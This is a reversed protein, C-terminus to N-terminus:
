LCVRNEASVPTLVARTVIKTLPGMFGRFAEAGQLTGTPADCAIDDAVFTMALDFDKM